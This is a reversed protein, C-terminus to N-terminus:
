RSGLFIDFVSLCVCVCVCVDFMAGGGGLFFLCDSYKVSYTNKSGLLIWNPM